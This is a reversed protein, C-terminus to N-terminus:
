KRNKSRRPKTCKKGPVTIVSIDPDAMMSLKQIQDLDRSLWCLDRRCHDHNILIWEIKILLSLRNPGWRSRAKQKKPNADCVLMYRELYVRLWAWCHDIITWLIFQINLFQTRESPELCLTSGRFWLLCVCSFTHTQHTKSDCVCLTLTRFNLWQYQKPFHHGPASDFWRCSSKWDM